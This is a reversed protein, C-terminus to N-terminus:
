EQTVYGEVMYTRLITVDIDDYAGDGNFDANYADVETTKDAIYKKLRVIDTADIEEDDVHVSDFTYVYQVIPKMATSDAANGEKKSVCFYINEGETVDVYVKPFAQSWNTSTLDIPDCILEMNDNLVTVYVGDYMPNAQRLYINEEMEICIRGSKPASFVIAIVGTTNPMIHGTTFGVSGATGYTWKQTESNYDLEKWTKTSIIDYYKAIWNSTDPNASAATFVDTGVVTNKIAGTRGARFDATTGKTDYIKEKCSQSLEANKVYTATTTLATNDKITNNASIEYIWPQYDGCFEYGNISNLYQNGSIVSDKLAYGKSSLIRVDCYPDNYPSTTGTAETLNNEFINNTIKCNYNTGENNEKNSDYILVGAGTNDHLYCNSVTVNDCSQEFDIAVGDFAQGGRQQKSIETNIIDFDSACVMIGATGPTFTPDTGCGTITCGDIYGGDGGILTGYYTNNTMACDTIYFGRVTLSSGENLYYPSAGWTYLTGCANTTCQEIYFGIVAPDTIGVCNNTITLTLAGAMYYRDAASQTRGDKQHFGTLNTFTCNKVKVYENNFSNQYHFDIGVGSGTISLNSIEVGEANNLLVVPVALESSATSTDEEKQLNLVPKTGDGYSSIRVPNEPTGSVQNLILQENWTDGAKLLVSVGELLELDKVKSFSKWPTTPTMGDNEDSGESSSIYYTTQSETEEILTYAIEPNLHVSPNSTWGTRHAIFSLRDGEEVELEIVTSFVGNTAYYVDTASIIEIGNHSFAFTVEGSNAYPAYVGGSEMSVNVIGSYPATFTIAADNDAYEPRIAMLSKNLAPGGNMIAQITAGQGGWHGSDESYTMNTYTGNSLYQYDWVGGPNDTTSYDDYANFILKQSSEESALSM